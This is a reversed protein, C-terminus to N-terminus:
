KVDGVSVAMTGIDGFVPALGHRNLFRTLVASLREKAIWTIVPAKATEGTSARLTEPLWVDGGTPFNNTKSAFFAALWKAHHLRVKRFVALFVGFVRHIARAVTGINAAAFVAFLSVGESADVTTFSKRLRAFGTPTNVRLLSIARDLALNFKALFRCKLSKLVTAVLSVDLSVSVNPNGNRFQRAFSFLPRHKLMAVDHFLRKAALQVRFLGNVVFVPVPVVVRNFVQFQEGVAVAGALANGVFDGEGDLYKPQIGIKCLASTYPENM